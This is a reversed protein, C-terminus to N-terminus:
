RNEPLCVSEWVEAKLKPLWRDPCREALWYAIGCSIHWHGVLVIWLQLRQVMVYLIRLPALIEVFSPTVIEAAAQFAENVMRVTERFLKQMEEIDELCIDTMKEDAM